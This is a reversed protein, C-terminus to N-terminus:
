NRHHQKTVPDVLTPPELENFQAVPLLEVTTVGLSKLHPIRDCLGLFTGPHASMGSPHATMGKVHCEYIVCESLPYEPRQETDWVMPGPKVAVSRATVPANDTSSFSRDRMSSSRNYGYLEDAFMDFSGYIAKAYPDLLLKNVNFRHGELPRYPGDMRWGYLQGHKLGNVFIHWIDGTKNLKPDLRFREFPEAATASDFLDLYVATANQSYVAFNIGEPMVTSGLPLPHGMTTKVTM